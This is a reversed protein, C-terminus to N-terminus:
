TGRFNAAAQDLLTQEVQNSAAGRDFPAPSARRYRHGLEAFGGQRNKTLFVGGRMDVVKAFGQSDAFAAQTVKEQRTEAHARPMIQAQALQMVNMQIKSFVAVRSHGHCITKKLM